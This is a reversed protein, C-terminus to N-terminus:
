LLLMQLNIYYSKSKYRDPTEDAKESLLNMLSSNTHEERKKANLYKKPLAKMETDVNTAFWNVHMDPMALGLICGPLGNFADPGASPKIKPCYFAFVRVSDFIISTAERCNYGAIKRFNNTITWELQRTSDKIITKKDYINKTEVYTSDSLNTSIQNKNLSYGWMGPISIDNDNDAFYESKKPRVVLYFEEKSEAPINSIWKKMWENDKMINKVYITKEFTITCSDLYQANLNLSLGAICLFVLNKM